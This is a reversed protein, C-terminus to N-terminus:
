NEKKILFKYGVGRINQIEVYDNATDTWKRFKVIYNDVTRNSPYSDEGWIEEIIQDRSIVKNKNSILLSLIKNERDSLNIKLNNADEIEFTQPTFKLPGFTITMSDTLKNQVPIKKIRLLLEKLRFPKTMYDAAGLELGELKIDPSNQASLFIIKADKDSNLIRKALSLGSGDPLGIDLIFCHFTKNLVSEAEEISKVWVCEYNNENLYDKLTIGLNEEDEVILIKDTM